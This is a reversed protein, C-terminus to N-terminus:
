KATRIARAFSKGFNKKWNKKAVRQVTKAMGLRPRIRATGRHLFYLLVLRGKKGVRRFIAPKNTRTRAIFVNPKHLIVGPRQKRTVRSEKRRRIGRPIAFVEGAPSRTAGHEQDYMFSDRSFVMSFLRKKTAKKTRIGNSIWTSRIVFNKSLTKRVAKQGDAATQTLALATAFPIQKRKLDGLRKKAMDLKLDVTFGDAM